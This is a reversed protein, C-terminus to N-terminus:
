QMNVTSSRKLVRTTGGKTISHSMMTPPPTSHPAQQSLSELMALRTELSKRLKEVEEQLTHEIAPTQQLALFNLYQEDAITFSESANPFDMQKVDDIYRRLTEEMLGAGSLYQRSFKPQLKDYMGM